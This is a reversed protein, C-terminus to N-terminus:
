EVTLKLIHFVISHETKHTKELSIRFNGIDDFIDVSLLVKHYSVIVYLTEAGDYAYPVVTM